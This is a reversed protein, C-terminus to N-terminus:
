HVDHSILCSTLEKGHALNPQEQLVEALTGEEQLGSLVHSLSMTNDRAGGVVPHQGSTGASLVSLSDLDSAAGGMGSSPSQFLSTTHPHLETMASVYAPDSQGGISGSAM